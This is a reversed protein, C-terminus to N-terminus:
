CFYKNVEVLYGFGWDEEAVTTFIFGNKEAIRNSPENEVMVSVTILDCDTENYLYEVMLHLVETAIGRNWYREHFRAGLSVKHAEPRYGYIEALGCFEWGGLYVGLIISEKDLFLDKYVDEIVDLATGHNMEFLYAPIYPYNRETDIFEQLASADSAELPRITLHEGVITPLESFLEVKSMAMM